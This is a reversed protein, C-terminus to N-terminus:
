VLERELRPHCKRADNGAIGESEELIAVQQIRLKLEKKKSDLTSSM